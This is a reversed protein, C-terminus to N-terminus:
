RAGLNAGAAADVMWHLVGHAPKILQAPLPRPAGDQHLVERLRAAKDAGAVLFTVNASANLVVTTVTVRWMPHPREIHVAMAWRRAETTAPTGPFISATHGDPGMGLL